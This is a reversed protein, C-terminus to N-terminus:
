ESRDLARDIVERARAVVRDPDLICVVRGDIPRREAVVSAGRARAPAADVLGLVRDVGIGLRPITSKRDTVVLVHGPESESGSAADAALDLMCECRVIPLADGHYNMVRAVDGPVTPVCAEESREVVELVGEIPLAFLEAALEFTLLREDNQSADVSV